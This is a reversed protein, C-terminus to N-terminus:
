ENKTHPYPYPSTGSGYIRPAYHFEFSLGKFASNFGMQWKSANSPPALITTTLLNLTLTHQQIWKAPVDLLDHYIHICGAKNVNTLTSFTLTDQKTGPSWYTNISLTGKVDAVIGPFRIAFKLPHYNKM